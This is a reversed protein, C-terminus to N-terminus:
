IDFNFDTLYYETLILQKLFYSENFTTYNIKPINLIDKIDNFNDDDYFQIPFKYNTLERGVKPNVKYLIDVLKL